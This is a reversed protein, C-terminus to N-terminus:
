GGEAVGAGAKGDLPQGLPNIVRELLDESANISLLRGTRKVLDGEKIDVGKGLVIISVSDEDLNLVFGESGDSFIVLEGMEVQSLGSAVIVGDNNKEVKGVNQIKPNLSFANM